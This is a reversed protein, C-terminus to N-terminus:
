YSREFLYMVGGDFKVVPTYRPAAAPSDSEFGYFYDANILSDGPPRYPTLRLWPANGLQQYYTLSPVFHWNAQLTVSDRGARQDDLWQLVKHTHADFWWERVRDFQVVNAFHWLLLVAFGIGLGRVLKPQLPLFHQIGAVLLLILLPYYLLATRHTLNPTGLLMNQALNVVITLALLLFAPVIPQRILEAPFNTLIKTDRGTRYLWWRWALYAGVALFFMVAGMAFWHTSMGFFRGHYRTDEALFFVTERYFGRSSWYSFQNSAQMKALPTYCLALYALGAFALLGLRTLLKNLSDYRWLWYIVMLLATACWFILATFNAYSALLALGFAPWLLRRNDTTWAQVSLWASALLLANSLGYGRCVSFFDLLYPNFVFLVFSAAALWPRDTFLLRGIRWAAYAYLPFALVNALRMAWPAPGFLYISLKTLLTNLIHNNPWPDPYMMIEWVSFRSYHIVTALEDHTIPMTVAKYLILAWAVMGLLLVFWPFSLAQRM